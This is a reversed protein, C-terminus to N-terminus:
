QGFMIVRPVVSSQLSVVSSMVLQCELVMSTGGSSTLHSAVPGDGEGGGGSNSASHPTSSSFACGATLEDLKLSKSALGFVFGANTGFGGATAGGSCRRFCRVMKAFANPSDLEASMSFQSSCACMFVYMLRRPCLRVNKTCVYTCLGEPACTLRRPSVFMCVFAKKPGHMCPGMYMLMRRGM